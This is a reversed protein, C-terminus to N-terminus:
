PFTVYKKIAEMVAKRNSHPHVDLNLNKCSELFCQKVWISAENLALDTDRIEVLAALNNFFDQDFNPKYDINSICQDLFEDPIIKFNQEQKTIIIAGSDKWEQQMLIQRVDEIGTPFLAVPKALALADSILTSHTSIVGDAANMIRSISWDICMLSIEDIVVINRYLKLDDSMFALGDDAHPRLMFLIDPYQEATNILWIVFDSSKINHESWHLNSGVLLRLRYHKAFSTLRFAIADPDAQAIGGDLHKPSGLVLPTCSTRPFSSQEFDTLSKTNVALFFQAAHSTVDPIVAGHQLAVTTAGRSRADLTILSALGHVVTPLGETATLFLDGLGVDWEGLAINAEEVTMVIRTCVGVRKLYSEIVEAYAPVILDKRIIVSVSDSRWVDLMSRLFSWDQIFSVLYILRPLKEVSKLHRKNTRYKIDIVNEIRDRVDERSPAFQQIRTLRLYHQHSDHDSFLNGKQWVSVAMLEQSDSRFQQKSRYFQLPDFDAVELGVLSFMYKWTDIPLISCHYLNARSSPRTSISILGEKLILESFNYIFDPLHELDIHEAMDFSVILINKDCSQEIIKKINSLEIDDRKSIDFNVFYGDQRDAIDIDICKLGKQRLIEGFIGNGSGVDVVTDIALDQCFKAITGPLGKQDFSSAKPSHAFYGVKYLANYDTITAYKDSCM